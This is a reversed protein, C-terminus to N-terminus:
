EIVEMRALYQGADIAAMCGSGAAVIAQHYDSRGVDGAVFVGDRSTATAGENEKEDRKMIYGESSLELQGSFMQSNPCHGIAIFVGNVDVTKTVNTQNNRIRIGTVQREDGLIEDLEHFWEIRVKGVRVQKM